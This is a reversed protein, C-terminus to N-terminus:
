EEAEPDFGFNLKLTGYIKRGEAVTRKKREIAELLRLAQENNDRIIEKKIEEVEQEVRSKDQINRIADKFSGTLVEDITRIMWVRFNVDLWAAFDVALHRHMWTGSDRRGTKTQVFDSEEFSLKHSELEPIIGSNSDQILAQIFEKTSQLRLFEFPEKGFHKAIETVNVMVEENMLTDFTIKSELYTRTIAKM